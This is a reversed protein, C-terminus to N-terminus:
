FTLCGSGLDVGQKVSVQVSRLSWSYLFPPKRPDTTNPTGSYQRVTIVHRGTTGPTWLVRVASPGYTSPTASGFYKGNDYFDVPLLASRPVVNTKVTIAHRCYTGLTKDPNASVTVSTVTAEAAATGLTTAIGAAAITAALAAVLRRAIRAHRPPSKETVPM